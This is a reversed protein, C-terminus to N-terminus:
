QANKTREGGGRGSRVDELGRLELVRRRGGGAGLSAPEEALATETLRGGDLIYVPACPPRRAHSFVAKRRAQNGLWRLGVKRMMESV